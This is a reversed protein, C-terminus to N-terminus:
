NDTSLKRSYILMIIYITVFVSVYLLITVKWNNYLVGGIIFSTIAGILLIIQLLLNQNHKKSIILAFSLPVAIFKALYMPTMYSSMIGAQYWKSGFVVKFLFPSTLMLIMFPIVGLLLLMKLSKNFVKRYAGTKEKEEFAENKYVDGFASGIAAVPANLVRNTIAYYGGITTGFMTTLAISPLQVTLSNLIMSPMYKLPFEKYKKILGISTECNNQKIKMSVFKIYCNYIRPLNFLLLIFYAIIQSVVLGGEEHYFLVFLINSGIVFLSMEIKLRATYNIMGYRIYLYYIGQYFVLLMSYIPILWIIWSVKEIGIKEGIPGSIMIAVPIICISVISTLTCLLRFIHFAESNTEAIAIASDFSGSVLISNIVSISIFTTYVGFAEPTYIRSLIPSFIIPILQSIITGSLAYSLKRIYKNNTIYGKYKKVIRM